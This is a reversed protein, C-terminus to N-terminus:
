YVRRYLSTIAPSPAEEIDSFKLGVQYRYGPQSEQKENGELVQTYFYKNNIELVTQWGVHIPYLHVGKELIKEGRTTWWKCIDVGYHLRPIIADLSILEVNLQPRKSM